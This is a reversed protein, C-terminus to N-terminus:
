VYFPKLFFIKKSDLFGEEELIKDSTLHFVDNALITFPAELLDPVKAEEVLKLQTEKIKARLLEGRNEIKEPFEENLKINNVREFMEFLRKDSGKETFVRM